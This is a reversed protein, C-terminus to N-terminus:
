RRLKADNKEYFEKAMKEFEDRWEFHFNAIILGVYDSINRRAPYAPDEILELIAKFYEKVKEKIDSNVAEDWVEDSTMKNM